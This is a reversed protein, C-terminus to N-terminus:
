CVIFNLLCIQKIAIMKFSIVRKLFKVSKFGGPQAIDNLRHQFKVLCILDQSAVTFLKNKNFVVTTNKKQILM